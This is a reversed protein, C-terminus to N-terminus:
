LEQKLDIDPGTEREALDHVPPFQSTAAPRVNSTARIKKPVIL